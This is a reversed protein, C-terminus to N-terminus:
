RFKFSLATTFASRWVRKTPLPDLIDAPVLDDVRFGVLEDREGMHAGVTLFVLDVFSVSLGAVFDVRPRGNEEAALVGATLHVPPVLRYGNLWYPDGVRVNLLLVPAITFSSDESYGFRTEVVNGPAPTGDENRALKAQRVIQRSDLNSYMAGATVTVRGEGAKFEVRGVLEEKAEEQRLNTRFVQAEVMTPDAPVSAYRRAHIIEGEALRDGIFRAANRLEKVKASFDSFGQLTTELESKCNGADLVKVGETLDKFEQELADVTSQKSRLETVLGAAERLRSECETPSGLSEGSTKELFVTYKKGLTQVVQVNSNFTTVRAELEAETNGVCASKAAGKDLIPLAGKFLYMNLYEAIRVEDLSKTSLGFRYRYKFPNKNTFVVEVRSDPQLTLGAETSASNADITIQVYGAREAPMACLTKFDAIKEETGGPEAASAAMGISAVLMLMVRCRNM